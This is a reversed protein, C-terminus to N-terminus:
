VVCYYYSIIVPAGSVDKASTSRLASRPSRSPTSLKRTPEVLRPSYEDKDEILPQDLLSSAGLRSAPQLASEFGSRDYSYDTHQLDSRSLETQNVPDIPSAALGTTRPSSDNGDPQARSSSGTADRMLRLTIDAMEPDSSGSSTAMTGSQM